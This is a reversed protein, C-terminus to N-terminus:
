KKFFSFFDLMQNNISLMSCGGCLTEMLLSHTVMKPEICIREELRHGTVCSRWEGGMGRSWLRVRSNRIKKRDIFTLICNSLSVFIEHFRNKFMLKCGKKERQTWTKMLIVYKDNDKAEIIHKSVLSSSIMKVNYEPFWM